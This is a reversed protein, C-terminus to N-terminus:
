AVDPEGRSAADIGAERETIGVGPTTPMDTGRGERRYTCISRQEQETLVYAWCARNDLLRRAARHTGDILIRFPVPAQGVPGAMPEVLIGPEEVRDPPIHSLHEFTFRSREVLWPLLWAPDLLQAARPRARILARAMDVNWELEASPETIGFTYTEPVSLAMAAVHGRSFCEPCVSGLGPLMVPSLVSSM